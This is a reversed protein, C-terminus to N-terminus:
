RLSIDKDNSDNVQDEEKKLSTFINEVVRRHTSQALSPRLPFDNSTPDFCTLTSGSGNSAIDEIEALAAPDEFVAELLVVKLLDNNFLIIRDNAIWWTTKESARSHRLHRATGPRMPSLSAGNLKRVSTALGNRTNLINPITEVSRLIQCDPAFPLLGACDAIDGKEMAICVVQAEQQDTNGGEKQAKFIMEARAILLQDYLFQDSYISDDAHEKILTRITSIHANIIM